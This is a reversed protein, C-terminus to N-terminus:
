GAGAAIAADVEGVRAVMEAHAEDLAEAQDEDAKMLADINFAAMEHVGMDLFAKQV